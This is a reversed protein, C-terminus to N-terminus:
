LGWADIKTVRDNLNFSVRVLSEQKKDASGSKVLRRIIYWHTYGAVNGDKIKPEYLSRIEDSEGLVAAVEAPTMGVTIRKYGNRITAARESNAIFPYHGIERESVASAAATCGVAFTLLAFVLSRARNMHRSVDVSVPARGRVM